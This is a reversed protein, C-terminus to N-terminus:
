LDFDFWCWDHRQFPTNPVTPSCTYLSPLFMHSLRTLTGSPISRLSFRKLLSVTDHVILIPSWRLEAWRVSSPNWTSPFSCTQAARCGPNSSRLCQASSSLGPIIFRIRRYKPNQIGHKISRPLIVDTWRQPRLAELHPVSQQLKSVTWPAPRLLSFFLIEKLWELNELAWWDQLAKPTHYLHHCSLHNVIM